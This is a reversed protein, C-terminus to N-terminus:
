PAIAQSDFGADWLEPLFKFYEILTSRRAVRDVNSVPLIMAGRVSVDDFQIPHSQMGSFYQQHFISFRMLNLNKKLKDLM